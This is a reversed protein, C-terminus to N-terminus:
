ISATGGGDKAFAKIFRLAANEARAKLDRADLESPLGMLLRMQVGGVVMGVFMDAAQGPNDIELLDATRASLYAALRVRAVRMGADYIAHAMEPMEAASTVGMRLLSVSAPTVIVELISTAYVKLTDVPNDDPGALQLVATLADRRRAMITRVLETKSGYHNYVTQKSVGARRAVEEIPAHVGREALVEVAADLIAEHKRTDIQGPARPM